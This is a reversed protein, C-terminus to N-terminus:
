PQNAKLEGETMLERRNLANVYALASAEIIDTSSAKGDAIVGNFNVQLKVQGQADKGSGVAQIVYETLKGTIGTCEDISKFVADVPGDGAQTGM